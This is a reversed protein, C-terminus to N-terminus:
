LMSCSHNVDRLVRLFGGAIPLASCYPWCSAPRAAHARLPFSEGPLLPIGHWENPDTANYIINKFDDKCEDIQDRIFLLWATHAIPCRTADMHRAVTSNQFEGTLRKSKMYAYSLCEMMEHPCSHIGSARQCGACGFADSSNKSASCFLEFCYMNNLDIIRRTDGRAGGAIEAAHM